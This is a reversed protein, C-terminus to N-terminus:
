DLRVCNPRDGGSRLWRYVSTMSRGIENWSYDREVLSRGRAGMARLDSEPLSLAENLTATLSELTNPIWWGCEVENLVSWPAGETAVVPISYSLAEAVIVGFSESFTPLVLLDASSLLAAKDTGHTAGRFAVRQVRLDRALTKLGAVYDVEGPGAITLNWDPHRTETQAWARLLGEVNKVPHLRGLYIALRDTRAARRGIVPLDVGIPIIAIPAEAGTTRIGDAEASSTAHFCDVRNIVPDQLTRGFLVKRRKKWSLAWPDLMGRPSMVLPCNTGRVAWGPYVNPMMWLGHFHM